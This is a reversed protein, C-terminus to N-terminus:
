KSAIIQQMHFKVYTQYRPNQSETIINWNDQYAIISM